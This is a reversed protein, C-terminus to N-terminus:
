LGTFMLNLRTRKGTQLVNSLRSSSRERKKGLDRKLAEIRKPLGKQARKITAMESDLQQLSHLLKLQEEM